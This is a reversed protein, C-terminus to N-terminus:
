KEILKCNKKFIFDFSMNTLTGTVCSLITRSQSGTSLTQFLRSTSPAIIRTICSSPVANFPRWPPWHLKNSHVTIFHNKVGTKTRFFLVILPGKDLTWTLFHSSFLKLKEFIWNKLWITKRVIEFGLIIKGQKLYLNPFFIVIFILSSIWLYFLIRGEMWRQQISLIRNPIMWYALWICLTVSILNPKM